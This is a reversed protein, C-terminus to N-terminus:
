GVLLLSTRISKLNANAESDRTARFNPAMYSGLRIDRNDTVTTSSFPSPTRTEGM